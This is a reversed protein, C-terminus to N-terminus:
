VFYLLAYAGLVVAIVLAADPEMLLYRKEARYLMGLVTIATAIVIAAATLAHTSEVAALIGGGYCLDIPLIILLNFANSGFVNGVALDVSGMKVAGRTTSVEPLSTVFALGLSGVFTGGLGTRTALEDARDSLLPGAVLIAAAAVIYGITAHRLTLDPAAEDQEDVDEAGIRQDVAILRLCFVYTVAIAVAGASFRWFVLPTDIVVLAIVLGALLMTSVGALAHAASQRSLMSQRSRYMLDLIALILLNMLCSGLPDGLALNPAPLLASGCGIVLEPLSTALALLVIGALTRSLGWSSAMVDTYRPLFTGAVVVVAGLAILQICLMFM